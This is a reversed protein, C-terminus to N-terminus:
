TSDFREGLELREQAPDLMPMMGAFPVLGEVEYDRMFALHM